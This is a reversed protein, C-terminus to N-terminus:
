ASTREMRYILTPIIRRLPKLLADPMVRLMRIGLSDPREIELTERWAEICLNRYRFGAAGLMRELQRM